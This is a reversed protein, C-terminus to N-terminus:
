ETGMVRRLSNCWTRHLSLALRGEGGNQRGSAAHCFPSLTGMSLQMAGRGLLTARNRNSFQETHQQSFSNAPRRVCSSPLLRHSSGRQRGVTFVDKEKGTVRLVAPLLPQLLEGCKEQLLCSHLSCVHTKDSFLGAAQSLGWHDHKTGNM